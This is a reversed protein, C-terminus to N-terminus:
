KIEINSFTIAYSDFLDSNPYMTFKGGVLEIGTTPLETDTGFRINGTAKPAVSEIGSFTNYSLGNISFTSLSLSLEVTTKNQVNLYVYSEESSAWSYPKERVVKEFRIAINKDEYLLAGGLDYSPSKLTIASTAADWYVNKGMLNGIARVPLYTTGNYVLPYVETGNADTFTQKEGDVIVSFHPCIDAQVRQAINAAGVGLCFLVAALLATLFKKM